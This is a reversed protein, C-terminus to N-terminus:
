HMLSRIAKCFLKRSHVASIGPPASAMILHHWSGAGYQDNVREWIRVQYWGDAKQREVTIKWEIHSTEEM